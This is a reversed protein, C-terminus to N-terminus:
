PPALVVPADAIFKGAPNVAIRSLVVFVNVIDPVGVIPPVAFTNATPVGPSAQIESVIITVVLILGSTVMVQGGVLVKVPQLPTWAVPAVVIPAKVVNPPVVFAELMEHISPVGDNTPQESVVILVYVPVNDPHELDQVCFKTLVTSITFGTIVVVAVLPSKPHLGETVSGAKEAVSLQSPEKVGVTVM